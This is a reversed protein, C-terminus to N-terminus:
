SGSQDSGGDHRLRQQPWWSNMPRGQLVLFGVFLKEGGVPCTKGKNKRQWVRM